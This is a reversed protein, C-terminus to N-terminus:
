GRGNEYGAMFAAVMWRIAKILLGIVWGIIWPIIAVIIKITNIGAKGLQLQNYHSEINKIM